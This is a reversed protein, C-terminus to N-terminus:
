LKKRGSVLKTSRLRNSLLQQGFHKWKEALIHHFCKLPSVRYKTVQSPASKYQSFLTISRYNCLFPCYLITGFGLHGLSKISVFSCSSSPNVIHRYRQGPYRELYVTPRHYNMIARAKTSSWLLPDVHMRVVKFQLGDRRRHARSM